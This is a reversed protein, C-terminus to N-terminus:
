GQLARSAAARLVRLARITVWKSPEGAAGFDAWTGTLAHELPWHGTADRKERVVELARAQEPAAGVEVLALLAELLDSGYGLPFGFRLWHSPEDVLAPAPDHALDHARLFAVGRQIAQRVASSRQGEPVAALGRLVKVCGWLCPRWTEKEVIMEGNRVCIWGDVLVREALAAIVARVTPHDGLGFRLFARVLDGNLCPWIGTSHVHASFLHHDTRLANAMVHECARTIGETPRAGLDALFVLQWITARYRPSYGRGPRMWYGAPYQASLIARAPPASPIATRAEVVQPDDEPRDLLHRLALYRASPHEPQLLWDLPARANM